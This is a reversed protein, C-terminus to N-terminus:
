DADPDVGIRRLARRSDMLNSQVRGIPKHHYVLVESSIRAREVNELYHKEVLLLFARLMEEHGMVRASDVAVLHGRAPVGVLLLESGLKAEIQKMTPRHLIAEAAYFDGTVFALTIGTEPIDAVEVDFRRHGLNALARDRLAPTIPESRPWRYTDDADEVYAIVPLDPMDTEDPVLSEWVVDPTPLTRRDHLLPILRDKAVAATPPATSLALLQRLSGAGGSVISETLSSPVLKTGKGLDLALPVRHGLEIIWRGAREERVMEGVTAILEFMTTFWAAADDRVPRKRRLDHELVDLSGSFTRVKLRRRVASALDCFAADLLVTVDPPRSVVHERKGDFVIAGAACVAEVLFAPPAVSTLYVVRGQGGRHEALAM